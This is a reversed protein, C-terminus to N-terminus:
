WQCVQGPPVIILLPPIQLTEFDDNKDPSKKDSLTGCYM